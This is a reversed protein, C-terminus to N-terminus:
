VSVDLEDAFGRRGRTSVLLMREGPLRELWRLEILRATLHAGLAGALHPRHETGDLCRRAFARRSRRAASIDVGFAALRVEGYPTTDFALGTDVLTGQRLLTDVLAVGLKGAVHDYCMRAQRLGVFVERAFASRPPGPPSLTGLAELVLDVQHEALQYYRHRGQAEVALLGGAVLKALHSSGTPPSVGARAALESAILACGDMLEALMLAPAPEGLLAATSAFDPQAQM